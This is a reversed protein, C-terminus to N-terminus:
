IDELDDEFDDADDELDIDEELEALDLEAYCDMCVPEQTEPHLEYEDYSEDIRVGCISCHIVDSGYNGM